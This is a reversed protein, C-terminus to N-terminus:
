RHASAFTSVFVTRLRVNFLVNPGELLSLVNANSGVATNVTGTIANGTFGTSTSSVTLGFTNTTQLISTSGTWELMNGTVIQGDTSVRLGGSVTMGGNSVLLGANGVTLQGNSSVQMCVRKFPSTPCLQWVFIVVSNLVM